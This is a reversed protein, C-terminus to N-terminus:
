RVMLRKKNEELEKEMHEKKSHLHWLHDNYLDVKEKLDLLLNPTKLLEVIQQKNLKEKKIRVYLRLLMPLDDKVDEYIAVLRAM